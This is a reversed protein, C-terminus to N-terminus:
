SRRAAFRRCSRLRRAPAGNKNLYIGYGPTGDTYTGPAVNITAGAGAHAYAYTITKCPSASSACAGADAGTTAVYLNSAALAATPLAFLSIAAAIKVPTLGNSRRGRSAGRSSIFAPLFQSEGDAIQRRFSHISKASIFM